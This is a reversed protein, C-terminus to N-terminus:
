HIISIILHSVYITQISLKGPETIFHSTTQTSISCYMHYYVVPCWKLNRRFFSITSKVNAKNSITSSHTSWELRQRFKGWTYKADLVQLSTTNTLLEFPTPQTETVSAYHQVEFANGMHTVYM